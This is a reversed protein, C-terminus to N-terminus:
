SRYFVEFPDILSSNYIFIFKVLRTSYTLDGECDEENNTREFYNLHRFVKPPAAQHEGNM